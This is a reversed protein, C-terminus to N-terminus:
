TGFQPWVNEKEFKPLVKEEATDRTDAKGGGQYGGKVGGKFGGKGYGKYGAGIAKIGIKNREKFIKIEALIMKFYPGDKFYFFWKSADTSVRRISADAPNGGRFARGCM